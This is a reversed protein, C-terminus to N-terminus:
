LRDALIPWTLAKKTILYLTKLLRYRFYKEERSLLFQCLAGPSRTGM